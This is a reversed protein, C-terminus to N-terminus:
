EQYKTRKHIYMEKDAIKILQDASKEDVPDYEAFGRSLSISYPKTQRANFSETREVIRNWINIAQRVTCQPLILLFEDGGLRCVVDIKRVTERIFASVTMLVEDGEAHGYIDNIVKLYDIDVYCVCLKQNNRKALQLQQMFLLLGSRRNYVDTLVDM